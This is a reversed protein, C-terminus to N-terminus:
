KLYHYAQVILWAHLKHLLRVLQNKQHRLVLLHEEAFQKEYESGGKSQGHIRFLSFHRSSVSLPYKQIVRLWYDFDMCYQLSADFYGIDQILEAKIFTSPQIIFNAISLLTFSPHSRLIKKYQAVASQIKRGQEDIIFYDGTLWLSDPNKQFFEGVTHLSNPLYVDDSNLYAIVEGSAMTLGKNIADTQGDDPESIWTLRDDYKKLINLTEDTSGGDIVLYELNPYNQNLVSTITEEIFQGQNYSPTIITIKPLITDPKM